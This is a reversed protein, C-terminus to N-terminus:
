AAPTKPKAIQGVGGTVSLMPQVQPAIQLRKKHVVRISNANNSEHTRHVGCRHPEEPWLRCDMMRTKNTKDISTAGHHVWEISCACKSKRERPIKKGKIQM